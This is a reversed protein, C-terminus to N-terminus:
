FRSIFGFHLKSYNLSFPQVASRGVSYAFNFIGSPTTFSIGAGVGLPYDEIYTNLVDRNLYSQDYFLFLYSTEDTFFRYELTNITYFSTFFFQENFGRLSQLGGVRMLDNQFLNDNYVQATTNRFLLTSNQGIKFYQSASIKYDLQLDTLNLDQYLIPNLLENQLISRNGISTKLHINLGKKPYFIDDTNNWDMEVGYKTINLDAFPPLTTANRYIASAAIRPDLRTSHIEAFFGLRFRSSLLTGISVGRNIQSFLTDQKLFKFMIGVDLASGLIRTHTYDVDFVQSSQQFRKWDINLSKASNFLNRLRLSAEGTILLKGDNENPLIGLIFDFQGAKREDLDLIVHAKDREFYVEPKSKVRLFTLQRLYKPAEDVRRQSFYQLKGIGLYPRLFTHKIKANGNLIISDFVIKKKRDVKFVANVSDSNISISDFWIKAFPYGSNEYYSMLGSQMKRLKKYNLVQNSIYKETFGAKKLDCTLKEDIKLMYLKYQKGITIFSFLTDQINKISDQDALYHGRFQLDAIVLDIQNIANISDRFENKYSLKIPENRIIKLVKSQAFLKSQLFALLLFLFVIKFPKIM